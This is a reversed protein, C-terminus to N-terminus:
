HAVAFKGGLVAPNVGKETLWHGLWRDGHIEELRRAKTRDEKGSTAVFALAVPGLELQFMRRGEPSSFFYDRKPTGYALLEMERYTLGLEKYMKVGDESIAAPNPLLIRTKCAQYLTSKIPSNAMDELEQTAFIVHANAKRLVKLWERIKEQFLPHDLMLWAEDLIIMVPSGDLAREVARFLYLLVPVVHKDGLEMLQEMEFVAFRNLAISDQRANLMGGALQSEYLSLVDRVQPSQVLGALDTFSRMHVPRTGLLELARAIEKSLNLDVTIGNLQLLTEVYDSAWARDGVRDVRAFPCLGITKEEYESMFAFHDGGAAKCAVYMSEGKEFSFVKARPYRFHQLAMLGLAVSKGAGTPGVLLSHGVDGNHLVVRFPTGGSAAGYFLPPVPKGADYGKRYFSCPNGEQGQWVSSLPLLHALNISHLLPRRVNEYGHGPISGLFAEVANIDEDRVVFSAYRLVKCLYTVAAELQTASENMLIITSTYHGYSVTGASLDTLAGESDAAMKAADENIPGTDKGTAQSVFGRIKQRWKKRMDSVVARAHEPDRAIWRTTWRYEVPLANLMDLMGVETGEEPPTEITIVRIHNKGVRPRIGGYFPQSGIIADLGVPAERVPLRVKQKIGTACWLLFSLQDENHETKRTRPNYQWDSRLPEMGGLDTSLETVVNTVVKSFYELEKRGIAANGGAVGDEKEFVLERIKGHLLLPPLYTMTLVYDNEFHMGENMYQKRREDEIARTVPDPFAAEEAYDASSHRSSTVHWMWGTGLKKVATNVRHSIQHLEEISACQLDKGRYRFSAILEGGKGLVIGNAILSEHRLLDGYSRMKKRFEQAFFDVSGV